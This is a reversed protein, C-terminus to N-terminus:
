HVAACHPHLTVAYHPVSTTLLFNFYMVNILNFSIVESYFMDKIDFKTIKQQWLSAALVPFGRVCVCVCWIIMKCEASSLLALVSLVVFVNEAFLCLIYSQFVCVCV